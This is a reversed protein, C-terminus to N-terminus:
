SKSCVRSSVKASRQLAASTSLSSSNAGTKVSFNRCCGHHARTSAPDGISVGSPIRSRCDMATGNSKFRSGGANSSVIDIKCGCFIRSRSCRKRWCISAPEGRGSNSSANSGRPKIAGASLGKASPLAMSSSCGSVEGSRVIRIKRATM